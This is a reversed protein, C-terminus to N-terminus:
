QDHRGDVGSEECSAQGFADELNREKQANMPLRSRLATEELHPFIGCAFYEQLLASSKSLPHSCSDSMLFYEILINPVLSLEYPLTAELQPLVLLLSPTHFTKNPSLLLPGCGRMSQKPLGEAIIRLDLQNNGPHLFVDLITDAGTMTDELPRHSSAQLPVSM